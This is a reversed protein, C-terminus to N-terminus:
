GIDMFDSYYRWAMMQTLPSYYEQAMEKHGDNGEIVQGKLVVHDLLM